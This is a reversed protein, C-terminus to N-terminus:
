DDIQVSFSPQFSFALSLVRSFFVCRLIRSLFSLVLLLIPRIFTSFHLFFCTYFFGFSLMTLRLSFAAFLNYM